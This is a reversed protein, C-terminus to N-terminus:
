RDYKGRCYSILTLIACLSFQKTANRSSSCVFEACLVVEKQVGKVLVLGSILKISTRRNLELCSFVCVDILCLYTQSITSSLQVVDM